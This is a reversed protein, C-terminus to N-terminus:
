DAIAYQAGITRPREDKLTTKAKEYQEHPKSSYM